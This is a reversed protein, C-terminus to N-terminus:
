GLDCLTLNGLRTELSNYMNVLNRSMRGHWALSARRKLSDCSNQTETRPSCPALGDINKGVQKREPCTSLACRHELGKVYLTWM